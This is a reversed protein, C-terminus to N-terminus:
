GCHALNVCSLTLNANVVTVFVFCRVSQEVESELFGTGSFEELDNPSLDGGHVHSDDRHAPKRRRCCLLDLWLHRVEM